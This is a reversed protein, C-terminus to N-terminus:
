RQGELRGLAREMDRFGASTSKQLTDLQAFLERVSDRRESRLQHLEGVIRADLAKLDAQTAFIRSAEERFAALVEHAPPKRRTKDWITVVAVLLSLVTALAGLFYALFIKDDAYLPAPVSALLPLIPLM